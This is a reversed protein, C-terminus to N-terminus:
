HPQMLPYSDYHDANIGYPVDGIGDSGAIDQAPGSFLDAGAYDSWYNGAQPYGADWYNVSSSHPSSVQM